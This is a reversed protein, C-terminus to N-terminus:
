EKSGPTATARPVMNTSPTNAVRASGASLTSPCVTSRSVLPEKVLFMSTHVRNAVGTHRFFAATARM